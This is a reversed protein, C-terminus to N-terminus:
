IEFHFKEAVLRYLKKYKELFIKGKVELHFKEARLFLIFGDHFFKM